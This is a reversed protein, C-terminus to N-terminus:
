GPGPSIKSKPACNFGNAGGEGTCSALAPSVPEGAGAAGAGATVGAAAAFLASGEFASGVSLTPTFSGVLDAAFGSGAGCAVVFAGEPDDSM